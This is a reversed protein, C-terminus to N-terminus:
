IITGSKIVTNKPIIVIGDRICYLDTDMQKVKKKNTIIVNNGIRVNKDIIVDRITCEKGIGIPPLHQASTRKEDAATEYSDAGMMVVRELTSGERIISRVGIVAKKITARAVTCGEAILSESVDADLFMSASLSRRNTYFPADEDYFSFPPHKSAFALNADFFSRITGVDEWYGKFPFSYVKHTKIANPIIDKGFDIKSTDTLLDLLVKKRFLYIGMSALYNRKPDKIDMIKKQEASLKLSALESPDSPKESFAHIQNKANVKMIGYGRASEEDVPVTSVILDAGTEKIQDLLHSFDMRYIQDGSLILIFECDEKDFQMIHKRVADATGQFWDMNSDTQEAALIRVFGKSFSDFHYASYVHNNLSASNFQTLIFIKKLGSNICNSIPIDIMRYKAGVPVAPKSRDRVLPYLRTGRGGGLILCYTTNM